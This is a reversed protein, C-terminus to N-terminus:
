KWFFCGCAGCRGGVVRVKGGGGDEQLEGGEANEEVADQGGQIFEAVERGEGESVGDVRGDLLRELLGGLM